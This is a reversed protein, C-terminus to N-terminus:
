CDLLAIALVFVFISVFDSNPIYSSVYVAVECCVFTLHEYRIVNGVRKGAEETCECM